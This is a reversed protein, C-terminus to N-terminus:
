DTKLKKHGFCFQKDHGCRSDAAFDKDKRGQKRDGDHNWREYMRLIHRAREDVGHEEDGHDKKTWKFRHHDPDDRARNSKTRAQEWEYKRGHHWEDHDAVRNKDGQEM